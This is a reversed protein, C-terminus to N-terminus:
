RARRVRARAAVAATEAEHAYLMATSASAHESRWKADGLALIARQVLPALQARTAASCADLAAEADALAAAARELAHRVKEEDSM